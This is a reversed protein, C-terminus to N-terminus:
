KNEFIKYPAYRYYKPFSDLRVHLWAVGGGATSLWLPKESLHEQVAKSMRKLLTHKQTTPAQRIFSALHVYSDPPAVACPVILWADGGLNTFEAIQDSPPPELHSRFTRQDPRRSLGPSDSVVCEFPRDGTNKTLPPTEWRFAQFPVEILTEIFLARFNANQQLLTLVTDFNITQGNELFRYKIQRDGLQEATITWM